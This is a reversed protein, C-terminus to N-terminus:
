DLRRGSQRYTPRLLDALFPLFTLENISFLSVLFFSARVGSKQSMGHVFTAHFWYAGNSFQFWLKEDKEKEDADEEELMAQEALDVCMGCKGEKNKGKGRVWEPTYRDSAFRKGQRYPVDVTPSPPLPISSPAPTFLARGLLPPSPAIPTASSASSATPSAAPPTSSLSPIAIM